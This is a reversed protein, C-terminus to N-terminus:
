VLPTFMFECNNKGVQFPTDELMNRSNAYAEPM